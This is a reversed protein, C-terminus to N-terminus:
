YMMMCESIINDNNCMTIRSRQRAIQGAGFRFPGYARRAVPACVLCNKPLHVFRIIWVGLTSM